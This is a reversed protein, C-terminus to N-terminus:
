GAASVLVQQREKRPVPHLQRFLQISGAAFIAVLLVCETQKWILLSNISFYNCLGWLVALFGTWLWPHRSARVLRYAILLMSLTFPFIDYENLRPGLLLVGLLMMPIWQERSLKGKQYARSFYLLTLLLAATFLLYFVIGPKTYALGHAQLLAGFRGAPGDGFDDNYSFIRGVALLYSHFQVPWIWAQALFCLVGACGAGFAPLWQRNSTLPALALLTLYPAKVCSALLVALYFYIWRERRCGIWAGALVM